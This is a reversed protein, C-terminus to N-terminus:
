DIFTLKLAIENKVNNLIHNILYEKEGKFLTLIQNTMDRIKEDEIEKNRIYFADAEKIEEETM